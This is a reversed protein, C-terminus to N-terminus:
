MWDPLLLPSTAQVNTLSRYHRSGQLTALCRDPIRERTRDDDNSEMPNPNPNCMGSSRQRIMTRYLYLNACQRRAFNLDYTLPSYVETMKMSQGELWIIGAKPGGHEVIWRAVRRCHDKATYKGSPPAPLNPNAIPKGTMVATYKIHIHM